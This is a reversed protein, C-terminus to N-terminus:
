HRFGDILVIQPDTSRIPKALPFERTGRMYGARTCILRHSNIIGMLDQHTAFPEEKTCHIHFDVHFHYDGVCGTRAIEMFLENAKQIQELKYMEGERMRQEILEPVATILVVLGGANMVERQLPVLWNPDMPTCEDRVGAYVPESMFFRDLCMRPNVDPLYDWYRHFTDPLRSYHKYKLMPEQECLLQCFTTKGVLDPGEVIIM